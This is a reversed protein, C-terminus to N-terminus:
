YSFVYRSCDKIKYYKNLISYFIHSIKFFGIIIKFNLPPITMPSMLVLNLNSAERIPFIIDLSYNM